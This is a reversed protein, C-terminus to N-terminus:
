IEINNYDDSYDQSYDGGVPPNYKELTEIGNLLMQLKCYLCQIDKAGYQEAKLLKYALNSACCRLRPLIIDLEEQTM